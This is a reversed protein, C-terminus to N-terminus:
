VDCLVSGVRIFFFAGERELAARSCYYGAFDYYRCSYCDGLTDVRWAEFVTRAEM